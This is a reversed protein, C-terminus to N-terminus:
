KRLRQAHLRIQHDLSLCARFSYLTTIVTDVEDCLLCGGACAAGAHSISQEAVGDSPLAFNKTPGTTALLAGDEDLGTGTCDGAARYDDM